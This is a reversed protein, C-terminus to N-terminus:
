RPLISEITRVLAPQSWDLEGLYWYRIAGQADLVFTAPLGRVKWAHQAEANRDLLVPLKLSVEAAFRQVRKEGEAVNVTVIEVPRDRFLDRFQQIAPLEEQCPPCWTAWFHIVVAKGRAQMLDYSQGNLDKLILPPTPGGLWPVLGIEQAAGTGVDLLLGSLLLCLALTWVRSLSFQSM